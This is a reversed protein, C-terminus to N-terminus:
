TKGERRGTVEIQEGEGGETEERITKGENKSAWEWRKGRTRERLCM